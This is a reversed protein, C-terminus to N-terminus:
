KKGGNNQGQPNQGQPNKEQGQQTGQKQTNSIAKPQRMTIVISAVVIISALSWTLKDIFENTKKVGGLQSASGFDTSLGGGKPNQVFIVLTLLISAIIILISLLIDM